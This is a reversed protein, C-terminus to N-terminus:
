RNSVLMVTDLDEEPMPLLLTRLRVGATNWYTVDGIVNLPQDVLTKLREYDRRNLVLFVRETSKLFAIAGADDIVPVQKLRTYFPLNRVFTEYEGISEGGVRNAHILAAIQEVAEPRKGAFAGFQLTLLLLAASVTMLRPLWNWSRRVATIVLALAAVILVGIGTWTLAPYASVFLIRARYFLTAMAAFMATTGITAITLELRAARARSAAGIRNAIGAGVMMAIPPLMPLVYRPQKGISATFLLLPALTWIVLRWEVDTLLRRRRILDRVIRWPLVLAYVTWPVLGGILIPVYYWLARVDNYRTTAFRELNDAVFFSQLYPTGHVAWMVVYWPLGSIAFLLFAITVDLPRIVVRTRERWWIPILVIAPIVVGLPGKTLFGLGASLGSIAAWSTPLREAPDTARLAAWITATIFLALPLDPLAARAMAFYGYCTAAIAGALWAGAADDLLRRAASWTLLVLGVGSLASGFRAMFETTDTGAFAAATFWYYLIPKQWRDEYNFHPTLWDNGEVMERAAEAYFAEDSDTIAQRGLGLFFTILSLFLLTLVSRRVRHCQVDATQPALRTRYDSGMFVTATM